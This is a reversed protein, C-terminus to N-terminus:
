PDYRKNTVVPARSLADAVVNTSGPRYQVDFDFVQLALAWPHLKGTLHPSTMLWKLDSHDTLITFRIGYLYPRFLKISWVAARCELETIGYKGPGLGIKSAGTVVRFPLRFDPYILLPKKILTVKVQDFAIEQEDSWSWNASKRLLKTIPVMISGFGEVFKHDYGALHVFRKAEVSDKLIPFERVATILRDLPRVGDEAHIPTSITVNTDSM